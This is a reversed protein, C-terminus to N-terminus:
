AREATRDVGRRGDDRRALVHPHRPVATAILRRFALHVIEPGLREHQLARGIRALGCFRVIRRPRGRFHPQNLFQQQMQDSEESLLQLLENHVDSESFLKSLM